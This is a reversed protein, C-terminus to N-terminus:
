INKECKNMDDSKFLMHKMEIRKKILLHQSLLSIGLLLISAICSVIVLNNSWVVYPLIYTGFVNFIIHIAFCYIINKNWNYFFGLVIALFFTYICQMSNRHILAFIIAQMIIALWSNFIHNFAGYVIGRFLVEEFIPVLIGVTLISITIRFVSMEILNTGQNQIMGQKSLLMTLIYFLFTVSIGTIFMGIIDSIYPKKIMINIIRRNEQNKYYKFYFIISTLIIAMLSLIEKKGKMSFIAVLVSKSLVVNYSVNHFYIVFAYIFQVGTQILIYILVALVAM